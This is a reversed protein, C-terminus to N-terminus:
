GRRGCQCSSLINGGLSDASGVSLLSIFSDLIAACDRVRPGILLIPSRDFSCTKSLATLTGPDSSGPLAIKDFLDCILITRRCSVFVFFAHECLDSIDTFFEM